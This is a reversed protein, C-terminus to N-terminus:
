LDFPDDSPKPKAPKDVGAAKRLSKFVDIAFERSVPCCSSLKSTGDVWVDYQEQTTCFLLNLKGFKLSLCQTGAYKPDSPSCGGAEAIAKVTIEDTMVVLDIDSDDTPIGYM